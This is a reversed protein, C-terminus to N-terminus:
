QQPHLQRTCKIEPPMLVFQELFPSLTKLRIFLDLYSKPNDFIIYFSEIVMAAFVQLLCRKQNYSINFQIKNKTQFKLVYENM